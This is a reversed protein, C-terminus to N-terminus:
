RERLNKFFDKLLFLCDNELIGKTVLLKNSLNDKLINELSFSEKRKIDMAGIVLRSIRSNLIAGLCMICPELTVYMTLSDLRFDKLKKGCKEIAIIEAHFICSNEKMVKNHGKSIVVGDKVIVCGVPVEGMKKAKLAEKIALNMFKEDTKLDNM